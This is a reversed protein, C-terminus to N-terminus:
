QNDDYLQCMVFDVNKGAFDFSIFTADNLVVNSLSIFSMSELNLWTYNNFIM